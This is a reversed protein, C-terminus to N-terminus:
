IEFLGFFCLDKIRLNTVSIVANSFYFIIVLLSIWLWPWRICCFCTWSFYCSGFWFIPRRWLNKFSSTLVTGQDLINGQITWRIICFAVAHATKPLALKLARNAMWGLFSYGTLPITGVVCFHNSRDDTPKKWSCWKLHNTSTLISSDIALWTSWAQFSLGFLIVNFSSKHHIIASSKWSYETPSLFKLIERFSTYGKIRNRLAVKM